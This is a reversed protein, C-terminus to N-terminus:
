AKFPSHARLEAAQSAQHASTAYGAWIPHHNSPSIHIPTPRFTGTYWAARRKLGFVTIYM